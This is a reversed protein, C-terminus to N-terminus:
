QQGNQRPKHNLFEIAVRVSEQPIEEMPVHGANEFITVSSNPIVNAFQRANAVPIWSDKAGWLILTPIQILRLSDRSDIQPTRLRELTAIRNGERLMLKYYRDIMAPTIKSQDAFVGSMTKEFLFRPTFQTLARAAAENALLKFIFPRQGAKAPPQSIPAPAGAADILILKKVRPSRIALKYAVAGGMSNGAVYFTDTQLADAVALVTRAYDDTSYHKKESPGTLGHGPLDLSITRYSKSLENEWDNWTHLSAFSGHLLFLPPGNGRVRTHISDGGAFIFRSENTFYSRKLDTVPIDPRYLTAVVIMLVVILIGLVLGVIRLPKRM